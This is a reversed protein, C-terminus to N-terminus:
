GSSILGAWHYPHAPDYGGRIMDGGRRFEVQAHRLAEPPELGTMLRAYFLRTLDAAAQDNVRWLTSVTWRSVYLLGRLFGRFAEGSSGGVRGTECAAAFFLELRLGADYLDRVRLTSSPGRGEHPAFVLKSQMPYDTEFVGHCSLHVHSAPKVFEIFESASVPGGRVTGAIESESSDLLGRLAEAEKRSSRLSLAPDVVAMLNIQEIPVMHRLARISAQPVVSVSAHSILPKYDTASPLGLAAFPIRYLAGCPVVCLRLGSRAFLGNSQLPRLLLAGLESLAPVWSEDLPGPGGKGECAVILEELDTTLDNVRALSAGRLVGGDIAGGSGVLLYILGANGPLFSLVVEDSALHEQIETSNAVGAAPLGSRNLRERSVRYIQREIAEVEALLVVREDGQTGAASRLARVGTEQLDIIDADLQQLRSVALARRRRLRWDLECGWSDDMAARVLERGVFGSRYREAIDFADQLAEAKQAEDAAIWRSIAVNYEVCGVHLRGFHRMMAWHCDETDARATTARDLISLAKSQLESARGHRGKKAHLRSLAYLDTALGLALEGLAQEANLGELYEVDVQLLKIAEDVDGLHDLLRAAIQRAHVTDRPTPGHLDRARVRAYVADVNPQEGRDLSLVAREMECVLRPFDNDAHERLVWVEGLRESVWDRLMDRSAEDPARDAADRVSVALAQLADALETELQPSFAKRYFATAESLTALGQGYDGLHLQVRGREELLMARLTLDSSQQLADRAEQLRALAAELQFGRRLERAEDLLRRSEEAAPIGTQRDDAM